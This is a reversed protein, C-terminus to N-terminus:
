RRLNEKSFVTSRRLVCFPACVISFFSFFSDSISVSLSSSLSFSLSLCFYLSLSPSPPLSLCLSLSLSPSLPLSSLSPSPLDLLFLTPPLASVLFFLFLLYISPYISLHISPYISPYIPLYISLYISFVSSRVMELIQNNTKFAMQNCPASAGSVQGDMQTQLRAKLTEVEHRM